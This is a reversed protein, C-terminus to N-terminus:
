VIDEVYIHWVHTGDHTFITGVYKKDDNNFVRGTGFIYFEVKKLELVWSDPISHEIWMTPKGYQMDVKLIKFDFPLSEIWFIDDIPFNYKFIVKKV